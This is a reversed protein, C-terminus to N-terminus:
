DALPGPSRWGAAPWAQASGQASSGWRAAAARLHAWTRPQQGQVPGPKRSASSHDAGKGGASGSESASQKLCRRAGGRHNHTEETEERRGKMSGARSLHLSMAKWTWLYGHAPSVARLARQRSLRGAQKKPLRLWVTDPCCGRSHEEAAQKEWDAGHPSPGAWLQLSDLGSARRECAGQSGEDTFRVLVAQVCPRMGPNAHSRVARRRSRGWVRWPRWRVQLCALTKM